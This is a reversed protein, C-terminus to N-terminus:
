DCRQAYTPEPTELSGATEEITITTQAGTKEEPRGHRDRVNDISARLDAEFAAFEHQHKFGLDFMEVTYKAYVLM